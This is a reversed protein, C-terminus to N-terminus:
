LNFTNQLLVSCGIAWQTGYVSKDTDKLWTIMRFFFYDPGKFGYEGSLIARKPKTSLVFVGIFAIDIYPIYRFM